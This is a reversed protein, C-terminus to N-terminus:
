IFIIEYQKELDDVMKDVANKKDEHLGQLITNKDGYFAPGLKEKAEEYSEM